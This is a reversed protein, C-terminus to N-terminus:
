WDSGNPILTSIDVYIIQYGCDRGDLFLKYYCFVALVLQIAVTLYRTSNDSMVLM